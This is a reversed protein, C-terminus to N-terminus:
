LRGKARVGEDWRRAELGAWPDEIFSLHFYESDRGGGVSATNRAVPPKRAEPTVTSDARDNDHSSRFAPMLSAAESTTHREMHRIGLESVNSGTAFDQIADRCSELKLKKTPRQAGFSSFGMANAIDPDM